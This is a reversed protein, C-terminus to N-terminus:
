AAVAAIELKDQWQTLLARNDADWPHFDERLFDKYAPAHMRIFGGKAFLFRSVSKLTKWKWLQKDHRLMKFAVKLTNKFFMWLAIRLLTVRLKYSGGVQTYVDFAISKHELEEMSHWQWLEAISDDVGDLLHGNLVNEGFTATFHELAVTSALMMKPTINRSSKAKAVTKIFVGELEQL